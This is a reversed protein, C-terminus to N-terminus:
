PSLSSFIFKSLTLRDPLVRIRYQYLAYGAAALAIVIISVFGWNIDANFNKGTYVMYVDKLLLWCYISAVSVSSYILLFFELASYLLIFSSWNFYFDIYPVM